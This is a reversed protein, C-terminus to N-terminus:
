GPQFDEHRPLDDLSNLGFLDLFRDGTTYFIKRPKEPERTVVLLQRRVLQNLVAGSPRGRMEDIEQRSIPQNYAVIALLDIAVQSLRIERIREYFKDRINELDARLTLRYGAGQSVIEYPAEDARYAENLREVLQDVETPSVGRLYSAMMRSTLPENHPHGVFLIAELISEPTVSSDDEEVPDVLSDSRPQSSDSSAESPRDEGMLQAFASTLQDVSLSEAPLEDEGPQDVELNDEEASM